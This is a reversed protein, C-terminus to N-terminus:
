VTWLGSTFWPRTLMPWVPEVRSLGSEYAMSIMFSMRPPPPKVERMM